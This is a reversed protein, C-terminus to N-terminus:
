AVEQEDQRIQEIINLLMSISAELEAPTYENTQLKIDDVDFQRKCTRCHECKEDDKCAKCNDSAKCTLHQSRWNDSDCQSIADNKRGIGEPHDILNRIHIPLTECAIACSNNTMCRSDFRQYKRPRKYQSTFIADLRALQPTDLKTQIYGLLENHFEPTAMQFAMYTIEALSPNHPHIHGLATSREFRNQSSTGPANCLYLRDRGQDKIQNSPCPAEESPVKSSNNKDKSEPEIPEPDYSQLMYPSHTAIIIQENNSITSLANALQTQAKPHMWIEPEDICLFLGISKQPKDTSNNKMMRAYLQIVSFAIARQLGNGKSELNTEACGDDVTTYGQKVFAMPDPANFNFSVKIEGSGFHESTLEGLQQELSKLQSTYGKEASFADQHAQIFQHWKESDFFGNTEHEILKGLLRTSSFDLVASPTDTARFFTPDFIKKFSADIGTANKFTREERPKSADEPDLLMIPKASEKSDFFRRAVIYHDDIIYKRLAEAQRGMGINDLMEKLEGPEGMLKVEVFYHPGSPSISKLAEIDTSASYNRIFDIAEFITSKGSNNNGVLFNVAPSFEIKNDEGTYSKFNALRLSHIFM